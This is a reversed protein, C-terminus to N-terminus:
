MTLEFDPLILGIGLPGKGPLIVKEFLGGGGRIGEKFALYVM